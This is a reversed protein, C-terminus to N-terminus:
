PQPKADTGITPLDGGEVGAVAAGPLGLVFQDGGEYPERNEIQRAENPTLTGSMIMTQQAKVRTNLDARQLEDANFRVYQSAPLMESLADEIRRMYPLLTHRVFQIGASEVNQYTQSEGGSGMMMHLPIRYARAIDRVIAERHELMQMDAASTTISRWKLGGTLVAPRRRKWHAEEWTDRLINAQEMTITTDTELVSSPTAGDGYFAALFRDMAIGMGITNRLAELPSVGRKANPLLLWHIARVDRQSYLEAGIEYVYQNTDTVIQDKIQHPHLVVMEAPLEGARRPAYVYASGHLTLTAMVQHIFEFMSQRANPKYLVSPTPLRETRGNRERLLEVPMSAVSDALLTVANIVASHAFATFENVVEGSYNAFRPRSTIQYPDVNLPLARREVKRWLSM